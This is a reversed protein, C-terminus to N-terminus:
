GIGIRPPHVRRGRPAPRRRRERRRLPRQPRQRLPRSALPRRLGGPGPYKDDLYTYHLDYLRSILDNTSRCGLVITNQPLPLPLDRDHRIPLTAGTLKRISEVLDRALADFRGDAPVVVIASPKGDRVIATDLHLDRLKTVPPPPFLSLDGSKLGTIMTSIDSLAVVEADDVLTDVLTDGLTETHTYLFVEFGTSGAPVASWTACQDWKDPGGVLSTQVLQQSPLFRLQLFGAAGRGGQAAHVWVSAKLFKADPPLVGVQSVGIETAPDHDSILLSQKGSRALTSAALHTTSSAGAYLDWSAPVGQASVAGEFGGNRLLNAPPPPASLVCLVMLFLSM